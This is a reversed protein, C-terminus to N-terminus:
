PLVIYWLKDRGDCWGYNKWLKKKKIRANYIQSLSIRETCVVHTDQGNQERKSHLTSSFGNISLARYTEIRVM